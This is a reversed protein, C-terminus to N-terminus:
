MVALTVGFLVLLSYMRSLDINEIIQFVWPNKKQIALDDRKGAPFHVM